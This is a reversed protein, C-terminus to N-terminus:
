PTSPHGPGRAGDRRTGTASGNYARGGPSFTAKAMQQKKKKISAAGVLIKEREGCAARGVKLTTTQTFTLAGGYVPSSTTPMSGYTPFPSAAGSTVDGITM